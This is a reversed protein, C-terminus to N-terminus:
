VKRLAFRNDIFFILALAMLTFALAPLNILWRDEPVDWAVFWGAVLAIGGLSLAWPLRTAVALASGIIALALVDNYSQRFVPLCLDIVFFWAVLGPLLKEAPQGRTLGLWGVFAGVAVVEFPWGPFPGLGFDHLVAHISFDAYSITQFAAILDTSTGEITGPYHQQGPRPTAGSLYYSANQTVASFYHAWIAPMVLMPVIVGAALGALAGLLQGRRHLGLFLGLLVFPPRLAILLGAIFGAAFGNGWKRDLTCALWASFVFALVVYSQGREAHLRWASTYTFGIIFAVTLWRQWAQPCARLWLVGTGLLLAWQTFLWLFQGLRYPMAAYPAHLLLLPPTVTTKSVPLNPNNYVDCYIDPDGYHWKYHYPDIGAEMLRVGTIRNRLDIAGGQSTNGFDIGFSVLLALGALVSGIVPLMGKMLRLIFVTM